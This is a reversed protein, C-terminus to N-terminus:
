PTDSLAIRFHSRCYSRSRPSSGNGRAAYPQLDLRVPARAESDRALRAHGGGAGRGPGAAM